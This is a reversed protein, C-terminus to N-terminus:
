FPSDFEVDRMQHRKRLAEVFREAEIREAETRNAWRERQAEIGDMAEAEARDTSDWQTESM